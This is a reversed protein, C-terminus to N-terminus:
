YIGPGPNPKTCRLGFCLGNSDDDQTELPLGASDYSEEAGEDSADSQEAGPDESDTVAVCGALAAPSSLLLYVLFLPRNWM